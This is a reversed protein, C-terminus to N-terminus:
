ESSNKYRSIVVSTPLFIEQNSNLVKFYLSTDNRYTLIANAYSGEWYSGNMRLFLTDHKLEGNVNVETDQDGDWGDLRNGNYMVSAWLGIVKNEDTKKLEIDFAENALSSDNEWYFYCWKGLFKEMCVATNKASIEVSDNRQMGQKKEASQNGTCALLLLPSLIFFLTLPNRTRSLMNLM